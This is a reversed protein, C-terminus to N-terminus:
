ESKPETPIAQRLQRLQEAPDFGTLKGVAPEAPLAAPAPEAAPHPAPMADDPRQFFTKFFDIPIPFITTTNNEAAIETLTQLYRLTLSAPQSQLMRAAQALTESAQLEGQASIVKARREREAEAQRAIARRMGDPLLVDKIEVASVEIGWFDTREDIIQKLIDNVKRRDALLEDLEVQGLVSLLTTQAMQGTAYLYDQIEIIALSPELVRFYLVANVKVSINDRTIVDQAPIDMAVIRMSVRKMQAFGLPVLAIGPGKTATYKGLFFVVGREYQKLIRISGAVYAFAALPLLLLLDM